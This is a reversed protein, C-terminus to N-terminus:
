PPKVTLAIEVLNVWRTYAVKEITSAVADHFAGAGAGEVKAGEHHFLTDDCALQVPGEPHFRAVLHSALVQWLQPM